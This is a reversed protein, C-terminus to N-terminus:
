GTSVIEYILRAALGSTRNDIDYTPNMEAIDCLLLTTKKEKCIRKILRITKIGTQPSIGVSAPASVGPSYAASFVDLCVSLYLYDLESIFSELKELLESSNKNSLEDGLEIDDIWQVKMTNAANILASTNVSRNIGVVLYHFGINKELCYEHAQWFPTGSSAHPSPKRLDFHADFNIIGLRSSPKVTELYKQAGLFSGWAIEHGGGMAIPFGDKLLIDRIGNSLQEQVYELDENCCIDGWDHAVFTVNCSLNGLSNRISTPGHKAGIRGQNRKVGEDCCFGIFVPAKSLNIENESFCRIHQHWRRSRESDETDIRGSWLQEKNKHM